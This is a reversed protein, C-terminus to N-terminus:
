GEGEGPLTADHVQQKTVSMMGLVKAGNVVADQGCSRVNGDVIAARGHTARHAARAIDVYGVVRRLAKESRQQRTPWGRKKNKTKPPASQPQALELEM